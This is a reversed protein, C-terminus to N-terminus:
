DKPPSHVISERERRGVGFLNTLRAPFEGSRFIRSIERAITADFGRLMRFVTLSYRLIDARRAYRFAIQERANPNTPLRCRVEWCDAYLRASIYADHDIPTYHVFCDRYDKMRNVWKAKARRCLAVVGRLHHKSCLKNFSVPTQEAHAATLIRAVIDLSSSVAGLFAEFNWYIRYYKGRGNAFAFSTPNEVILQAFRAHAEAYLGHIESLREWAHDAHYRFIRPYERLFWGAEGEEDSLAFRVRDLVRVIEPALREPLAPLDRLSRRSEKM